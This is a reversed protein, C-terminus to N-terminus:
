HISLRIILEVCKYKNLIVAKIKTNELPARMMEFKANKKEKRERERCKGNCFLAFILSMSALCWRGWEPIFKGDFSVKKGRKSFDRTIFPVCKHVLRMTKGRLNVDCCVTNPSGTENPSFFPPAFCRFDCYFACEMWRRM